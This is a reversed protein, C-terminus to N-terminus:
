YTIFVYLKGDDAKYIIRRLKLSQTETENEYGITIYQDQMVGKVEKKRTNDTIVKNVHYVANQEMRTVFWIKWATWKAFQRYLNYGKDFVIFKHSM